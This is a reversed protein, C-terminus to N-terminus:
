RSASSPNFDPGHDPAAQRREEAAIHLLTFCVSSVSGATAGYNLFPRSGNLFCPKPELKLGRKSHLRPEQSGPWNRSISKQRPFYQTTLFASIKYADTLLLQRPARVCNANLLPKYM